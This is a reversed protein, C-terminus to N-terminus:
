VVHGITGEDDSWRSCENKVKVLPAFLHDKPAGGVSKLEFNQVIKEFYFEM